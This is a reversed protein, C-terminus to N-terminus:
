AANQASLAAIVEARHTEMRRLLGALSPDDLAKLERIAGEYLQLLKVLTMKDLQDV